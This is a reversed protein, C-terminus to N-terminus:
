NTVNDLTITTYFEDLLDKEELFEKMERVKEGNVKTVVVATIVTTAVVTIPTKHKVVFNKASVAVDKVSKM